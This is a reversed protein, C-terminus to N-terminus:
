KRTTNPFTQAWTDVLCRRALAKEHKDIMEQRMAKRRYYERDEEEEKIHRAIMGEFTTYAVIVFMAVCAWVILHYIIEMM